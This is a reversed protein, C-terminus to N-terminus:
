DWKKKWGKALQPCDEIKFFLNVEKNIFRPAQCNKGYELPAQMLLCNIRRSFTCTALARSYWQPNCVRHLHHNKFVIEAGAFAPFLKIKVVLHERDTTHDESCPSTRPGGHSLPKSSSAPSEPEHESVAARILSVDLWGARGAKEGQFATFVDPSYCGRKGIEWLGKFIRYEM